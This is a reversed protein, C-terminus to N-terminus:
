WFFICLHSIMQIWKIRKLVQGLEKPSCTSFIQELYRSALHQHEGDAGLIRPHPRSVAAQATWMRKNGIKVNWFFVGSVHLHELHLQVIAYGLIMNWFGHTESCQRQFCKGVIKRETWLKNHWYVEVICASALRTCGFAICFWSETPQLFSMDGEVLM